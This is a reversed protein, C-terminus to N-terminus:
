DHRASGILASAQDLLDGWAEATGNPATEIDFADAIDRHLDATPSSSPGSDNAPTHPPEGLCISVRLVSRAQKPAPLVLAAYQLKGGLSRCADGPAPTPTLRTGPPPTSTTGDLIEFAVLIGGRVLASLPACTFTDVTGTPDGCGTPVRDATLPQVAAYVVTTDDGRPVDLARWEPPLTLSLGSVTTYRRFNTDAEAPPFAAPLAADSPVRPSGTSLWLALGVMALAGAAAARRQRRLRVRRRVQRMRDAPAELHPVMRQLLVRLEADEETDTVDRDHM